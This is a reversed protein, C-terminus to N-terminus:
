STSGQRPASRPARLLAARSLRLSRFDVRTVFDEVIAQSLSSAQLDAERKRELVIQASGPSSRALRRSLRPLTDEVGHWHAVRQAPRALLSPGTAGDFRLDAYADDELIPMKRRRARELLERRARGSMTRGHPNSVQPMVYAGAASADNAVAM